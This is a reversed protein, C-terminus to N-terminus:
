RPKVRPPITDPRPTARASDAPGPPLTDAPPRRRLTDAAGRAPRPVPVVLPVQRPPGVAGALGRINRVRVVYRSGPTLPSALRVVRNDTPAPRRALMKMARSTDRRQAGPAALPAPRGARGAPAPAAPAGASPAARRPPATDPPAAGQRQTTDRPTHAAAEAKSVSDFEAPTYVHLLPLARTSDDAPAVQVMSTDTAQSPDLPRDFVIRLTVSDVLDATRPRPGVTDHAFAYLEVTGSDQLAVRATDYAERADRRRNNNQDLVGYVLYAGPPMADLRFAGASDALTRYPLSDPLLVAEVLAGVAARNGAWDVVAGGLSGGPIAPGTSFVITRGVRMRNQRLDALVPLLQLHYIRGPLYGGKPEVTLRSRHWGVQVEGTAPSLIVAGGIDPRPANIRESLVEDFFLQATHPPTALVAGSEPETSLLVPPTTRPPGGPPDGQYACALAASGVAAAAAVALRLRARRAQGRAGAAEGVV